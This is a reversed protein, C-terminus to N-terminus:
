HTFGQVRRDDDKERLFRSDDLKTIAWKFDEAFEEAVNMSLIRQVVYRQIITDSLDAPLPYAPVQWGKMQLVDALEYM